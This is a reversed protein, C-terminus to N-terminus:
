VNAMEREIITLQKGAPKERRYRLVNGVDSALIKEGKPLQILEGGIKIATRGIDSRQILQIM